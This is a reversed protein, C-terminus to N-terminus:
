KILVGKGLFKKKISSAQCQAIKYKECIQKISEGNAISFCISITTDSSPTGGKIDDFEYVITNTKKEFRMLKM